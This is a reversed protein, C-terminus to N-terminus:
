VRKKRTALFKDPTLLGQVPHQWRLLTEVGVARGGRLDVIPQFLLGFEHRDLAIHLDAELGILSMAEGGM